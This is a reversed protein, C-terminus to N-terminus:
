EGVAIRSGMMFADLDRKMFVIVAGIKCFPLDGDHKLQDLTRISLCLYEAAEERRFYTKESMEKVNASMALGRCEGVAHRSLGSIIAVAM